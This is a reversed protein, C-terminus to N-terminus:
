LGLNTGRYKPLSKLHFQSKSDPIVLPNFIWPFIAQLPLFLLISLLDKLCVFRHHTEDKQSSNALCRDRQFARPLGGPFRLHTLYWNRNRPFLMHPSLGYVFLSFALYTSTSVHVIIRICLLRTFFQAVHCWNGM